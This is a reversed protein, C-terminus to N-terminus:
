RILESGRARAVAQTRNNVQLKAFINSVHSKVTGVSVTLADAIQQNSCGSSILELVEFERPSLSEIDAAVTGSLRAPLAPLFDDIAALVTEVPGGMWPAMSRGEFLVLRADPIDAALRRAAAPDPAISHERSLV